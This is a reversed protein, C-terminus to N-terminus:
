PIGGEAKIPPKENPIEDLLRLLINRQYFCAELARSLLAKAVLDLDHDCDCILAYFIASIREEARQLRAAERRLRAEEPTEKYAKM